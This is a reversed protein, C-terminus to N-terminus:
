GNAEQSSATEVHCDKETSTAAGKPRKSEWDENSSSAERLVRITIVPSRRSHHFKYRLAVPPDTLEGIDGALAASTAPTQGTPFRHSSLLRDCTEDPSHALLLLDM